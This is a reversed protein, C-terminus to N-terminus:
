LWWTLLSAGVILGLVLLLAVRATTLNAPTEDYPRLHPAHEGFFDHM